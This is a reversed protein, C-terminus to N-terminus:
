TRSSSAAGSRAGVPVLWALLGLAMLGLGMLVFGPGYRQLREAADELRGAPVPDSVAIWGDASNDTIRLEFPVNRISVSVRTWSEGPDGDFHLRRSRGDQLIEVFAGRSPLGAVLLSVRSDGRTSAAPVYKIRAEGVNAHGSPGFSGTSRCNCSATTSPVGPFGFGKGSVAAPVMPPQLHTPLVGRLTPSDLLSALREASPYPLALQPQALFKARDGGSLYARLNEEQRFTMTRTEDLRMALEGRALGAALTAICATLWVAAPLWLSRKGASLLLAALAAANAFLSVVHL